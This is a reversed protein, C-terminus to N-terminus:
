RFDTLSIVKLGMTYDYNIIEKSFYCRLDDAGYVSYRLTGKGDEGNDIKIMLQYVIQNEGSGAYPSMDRKLYLTREYATKDDNPYIKINELETQETLACASSIRGLYQSCDKDNYISYSFEKEKNAETDAYLGVKAPTDTLPLILVYDLYRDESTMKGLSSKYVKQEISSAHWMKAVGDEIGAYIGIHAWCDNKKDNDWFMLDGPQAGVSELYDVWDDNDWDEVYKRGTLARVEKNVYHDYLWTVTTGGPRYVGYRDCYSGAEKHEERYDFKVSYETRGREFEHATGFTLRFVLSVFGDCGLYQEASGVDYGIGSLRECNSLVKKVFQEQDYFDDPDGSRDKFMDYLTPYLDDDAIVKEPSIYCCAFVAFFVAVFIFAIAKVAYNGLKKFSM